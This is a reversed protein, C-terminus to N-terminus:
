STPLDIKSFYLETFETPDLGWASLPVDYPYPIGDAGINYGTACFAPNWGLCVATNDLIQTSSIYDEKKSLPWAERLAIMTEESLGLHHAWIEPHGAFKKREEEPWEGHHLLWGFGPSDAYKDVSEGAVLLELTVAYSDDMQIIATPFAHQSLGNALAVFDPFSCLLEFESVDDPDSISDYVALWPTNEAPGVAVVRNHFHTREPVYVFGHEKLLAVITDIVTQRAAAPPSQGVYVQMTSYDDGM